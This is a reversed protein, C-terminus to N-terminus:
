NTELTQRKQNYSNQVDNQKFQNVIRVVHKDKQFNLVCILSSYFLPLLNLTCKDYHPCYYISSNIICSVQSQYLVTHLNYWVKLIFIYIFVYMCNLFFCLLINFILENLFVCMHCISKVHLYCLLIHSLNKCCNNFLFKEGKTVKIKTKIRFNEESFFGLYKLLPIYQM